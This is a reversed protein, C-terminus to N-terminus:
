HHQEDSSEAECAPPPTPSRSGAPSAVPSNAPSAAPSASAQPQLENESKASRGYTFRRKKSSPSLKVAAVRGDGMNWSGKGKADHRAAKTGQSRCIDIVAAISEKTLRILLNDEPHAAKTTEVTATEGNALPAEITITEPVHCTDTM